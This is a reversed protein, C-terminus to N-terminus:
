EIEKLNSKDQSAMKEALELIKERGGRIADIMDQKSPYIRDRIKNEGILDIRMRGICGDILANHAAALATSLEHSKRQVQETLHNLEKKHYDLLDQISKERLAAVSKNIESIKNDYEKKISAIEISAAAIAKQLREHESREAEEKLLDERTRSAAELSLVRQHEDNLEQITPKRYEEDLWVIDDYSRGNMVYKAEPRIRRLLFPINLM